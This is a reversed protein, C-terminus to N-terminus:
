NAWSHGSRCALALPWASRSGHMPTRGRHPTSATASASTGCFTAPWRAPGLRRTPAIRECALSVLEDIAAPDDSCGTSAMRVM